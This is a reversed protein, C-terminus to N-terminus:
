MGEVTCRGYDMACAWNYRGWMTNQIVRSSQYQLAGFINLIYRVILSIYM